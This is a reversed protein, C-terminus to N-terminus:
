CPRFFFVLAYDGLCGKRVVLVLVLAENVVDHGFDPLSIFYVLSNFNEVILEPGVEALPEFKGTLLVFLMHFRAGLDNEDKVARLLERIFQPVLLTRVPDGHCKRLQEPHDDDGLLLGLGHLVEDLSLVWHHHKVAEVTKFVKGFETAGFYTIVECRLAVGIEEIL